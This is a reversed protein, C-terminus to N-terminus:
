GLQGNRGLQERIRILIDVDGCPHLACRLLGLMRIRLIAQYVVNSNRNLGSSAPEQWSERRCAVVSGCLFVLSVGHSVERASTCAEVGTPRGPLCGSGRVMILSWRM